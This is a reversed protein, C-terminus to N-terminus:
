RAGWGDVADVADDLQWAAWVMAWMIGTLLTGVVASLALRMAEVIESM